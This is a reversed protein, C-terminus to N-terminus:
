HESTVPVCTGWLRSRGSLPFQDQTESAENDFYLDERFLCLENKHGFNYQIKEM